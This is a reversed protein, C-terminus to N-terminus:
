AAVGRARRVMTRNRSPRSWNLPSRGTRTHLNLLRLRETDSVGMGRFAALSRMLWGHQDRAFALEWAANKALTEPSNYVM